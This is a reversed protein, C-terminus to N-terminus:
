IREPTLYLFAIFERNGNNLSLFNAARTLNENQGGSFFDLNNPVSGEDFADKIEEFGYGEKFNELAEDEQKKKNVFQEDLIDDVEAGLM